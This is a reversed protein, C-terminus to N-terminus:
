PTSPRQLTRPPRVCARVTLCIDRLSACASLNLETLQTSSETLARLQVDPLLRCGSLNLSRLAGCKFKPFM